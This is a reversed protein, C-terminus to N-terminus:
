PEFENARYPVDIVVTNHRFFLHLKLGLTTQNHLFFEWFHQPVFQSLVVTILNIGWMLWIVLPILVLIMWAGLAFKSVAVVLM